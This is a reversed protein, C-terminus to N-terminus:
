TVIFTLGILGRLPPPARRGREGPEAARGRHQLHPLQQETRRNIFSKKEGPASHPFTHADGVHRGFRPLDVPPFCDIHATKVVSEEDINGTSQDVLPM